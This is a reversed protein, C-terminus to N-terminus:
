DKNFQSSFQYPGDRTNHKPQFRLKEPNYFTGDDIQSTKKQAINFVPRLVWMSWEIWTKISIPSKVRKRGAEALSFM